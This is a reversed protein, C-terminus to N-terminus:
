YNVVFPGQDPASFFRLNLANCQNKWQQIQNPATSPSFIYAKVRFYQELQRISVHPNHSLLLYDTQFKKAPLCRMQWTSDIVVLRMTGIQKFNVGPKVQVTIPHGQSAPWASWVLAWCLALIFGRQWHRLWWCLLGAVIGYLCYVGIVSLQINSILAGPLHGIWAISANLWLMAYKLGTGLPVALQKMPSVLLLLMEGYLILTSAPGALLNAPVCYVPFQHFYYICVPLTLIQAALCLATAEWLKNVWRNAPQILLYVPRYCLTISLVALYSLQFGVDTLLYPNYCLLLFASAALTNYFNTPRAPLLQGLTFVSFMVSARLVSASAGTLLTFAWLVVLVVLVKVWRLRCWKLLWLLSVYILALHMGSIAIIHVIGTNTYDQVMAADLDYRYGILLASALGAEPGGIYQNFTNICYDRARQLLTVNSEMSHAADYTINGAWLAKWSGNRLYAAKYIGQTACYNRYQENNIPQLPAQLLLRDGCRLQESSQLHKVTDRQLYLLLKGETKVCTDGHWVADVSVTTRYKTAKAQLPELLTVQLLDGPKLLCEFYRPRLRGDAYHHLLMGVSLILLHLLSSGIWRIRYRWVPLFLCSFFAFLCVFWTINTRSFAKDLIMGIILLILLRVFPAGKLFSTL